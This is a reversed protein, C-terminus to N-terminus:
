SPAPAPFDPLTINAGSLVLAVREGPAPRYAGTILAATTVAGAPETILRTARWLAHQAQRIASDEVLLVDSVYSEAIPFVLDGVRRPALVDAAISGTPADAPGGNARARTLTPAGDPEVGIVRVAGAFYAAIGALLGGGGVPVLVTDLDSVQESLELGVSGQGLITERQDFAPVQAAGSEAAWTQAAAWADAYREGGIRLDAGFSRIAEIKANGAIVPVFITAPIGLRHAAYAVAVGHNGGSAAAVGAAPIERLLLNAFAGRAKFSGACQLQELKLVVEPGAVGTLTALPVDLTPTRRLYPRIQKYTRRIEDTGVPENM